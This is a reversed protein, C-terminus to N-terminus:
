GIKMATLKRQFVSATGAARHWQIEIAQSGNVTYTGHSSVGCSANTASLTGGDFPSPSRVSNADQVGGVYISITVSNGASASQVVSDFLVLYTGAIPTLTMGTMLADTGSTTTATATAVAESTSIPPTSINIYEM